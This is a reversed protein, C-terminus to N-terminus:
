RIISMAKTDYVGQNVGMVIMPAEVSSSTIIVNTCGGVIHQKAKDISTFQGSAEVVYHVGSSAWDIKNPDSRHEHGLTAGHIQLHPPWPM